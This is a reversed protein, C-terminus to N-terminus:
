ANSYIELSGLDRRLEKMRENRGENNLEKM